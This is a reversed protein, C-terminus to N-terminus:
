GADKIARFVYNKYFDVQRDRKIGSEDNTRMQVSSIAPALQLIKKLAAYSYPGINEDTIGVTMPIMPPEGGDQITRDWANHEWVGLTFDIGRSVCGESIYRLMELNKDRQAPSLNKARITPFEPLEIWFPYPPALYGTQHAFVLNFRNFRNRALMSLYEDWYEKSYYWDRELDANHLFYRIGRIPTKPAGKAASIKGSKRIQEAAELLGYMLGRADSATIKGPALTWSEPAGPDISEVFQTKLKRETLAKRLEARGFDRPGAPAAVQPLILLSFSFLSKCLSTSFEM